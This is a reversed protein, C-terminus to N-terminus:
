KWPSQAEQPRFCEWTATFLFRLYEFRHKARQIKERERPDFLGRAADAPLLVFHEAALLAALLLWTGTGKHKRFYRLLNRHFWKKRTWHPVDRFSTGGEHVFVATPCVALRVGRKFARYCWDVDEFWVFFDEDFGGVAELVDRTALLCAGAVQRVSCDCFSLPDIGLRAALRTWGTHQLAASPLTPFPVHYGERHSCGNRGVLSGGVVQIEGKHDELFRVLEAISGPAPRVDPNLLLVYPGHSCRIGVNAGCAFGVNRALQICTAWPFERRVMEPSGDSSDNDVVIVESRLGGAAQPIRALCERLAEQTNWSVIVISISSRTRGM